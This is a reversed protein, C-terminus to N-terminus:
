PVGPTVAAIKHDPEDAEILFRQPFLRQRGDSDGFGEAAAM